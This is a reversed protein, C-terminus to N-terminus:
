EPISYETLEYDRQKIFGDELYTKTERRIVGVDRALYYLIEMKTWEGNSASSDETQWVVLLVDEFTGAPTSFEEFVERIESGCTSKTKACETRDYDDMWATGQVLPEKLLTSEPGDEYMVRLEGASVYAVYVATENNFEYRMIGDRPYSFTIRKTYSDEARNPNVYVWEAGVAMPYFDEITAEPESAEPDEGAGGCEEPLGSRGFNDGLEFFDDFDVTGDRNIDGPIAYSSSVLLASSIAAIFLKM